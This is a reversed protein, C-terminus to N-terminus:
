YSLLSLPLITVLAVPIAHTNTQTHTVANTPDRSKSYGVLINLNSTEKQGATLFFFFVGGPGPTQNLTDHAVTLRSSAEARVPRTTTRPNTKKGGCVSVCEWKHRNRKQFFFFLFLLVQYMGTYM